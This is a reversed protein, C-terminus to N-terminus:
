RIFFLCEQSKADFITCLYANKNKRSWRGADKDIYLDIKSKISVTNEVSGYYFCEGKAPLENISLGNAEKAIYIGKGRHNAAFKELDWYYNGDYIVCDKDKETCDIVKPCYTSSHHIIEAYAFNSLLLILLLFKHKM